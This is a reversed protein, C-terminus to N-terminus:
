HGTINLGAVGCTVHARKNDPSGHAGDYGAATTIVIGRVNVMWRVSIWGIVRVRGSVAGISCVSGRGVVVGRRASVANGLSHGAGVSRSGPSSGIVRVGSRGGM